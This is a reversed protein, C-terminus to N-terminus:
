QTTIISSIKVLVKKQLNITIDYFRMYHSSNINNPKNGDRIYNVLKNIILEEMEKKAFEFNYKFKENSM